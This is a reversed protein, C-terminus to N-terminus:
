RAQGTSPFSSKSRPVSASHSTGTSGTRRRVAEVTSLLAARARKAVDVASLGTADAAEDLSQRDVFLAFFARRDRASRRNFVDCAFRLDAGVLGFPVALSHLAAAGPEAEEHFGGVEAGDVELAAGHRAGAPRSARAMSVVRREDKLVDEIARAVRQQIWATDSPPGDITVGHAICALARLQVRDADLFYCGGRIGRAVLGRLRLPDGDLLRELIADPQRGTLLDRWGEM